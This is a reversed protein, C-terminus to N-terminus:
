GEHDDFPMGGQQVFARYDDLVTTNVGPTAAAWLQDAPVLYEDGDAQRVRLHIGAADDQGAVGLVTVPTAAATQGWLAAFPVQLADTLYVEFASLQEYEDYCDVMIEEFRQERDPLHPIEDSNM